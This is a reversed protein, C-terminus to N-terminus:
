ETILIMVYAFPQHIDSHIYEYIISTICKKEKSLLLVGFELSWFINNIINVIQLWQTRGRIRISSM